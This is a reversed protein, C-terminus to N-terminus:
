TLLIYIVQHVTIVFIAKKLRTNSTVPAGVSNYVFNHHKFELLSLTAEGQTIVVIMAIFFDLDDKM